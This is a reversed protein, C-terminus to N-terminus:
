SQVLGRYRGVTSRLPKLTLFSQTIPNTAEVDVASCNGASPNHLHTIRIAALKVWISIEHSLLLMYYYLINVIYCNDIIIMYQIVHYMYIDPLM